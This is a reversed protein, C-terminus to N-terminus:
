DLATFDVTQLIELLKLTEEKSLTVGKGMKDHTENWDRIDFKPKRDNWSILNLEKIWGKTGEGCVGYNKIIEFKLESM